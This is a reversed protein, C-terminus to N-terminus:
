WWGREWVWAKRERTNHRRGGLIVILKQCWIKKGRVVSNRKEECCRSKTRRVSSEIKGQYGTERKRMVSDGEEQCGKCLGSM